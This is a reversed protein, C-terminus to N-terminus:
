PRSATLRRRRNHSGNNHYAVQKILNGALAAFGLWMCLM